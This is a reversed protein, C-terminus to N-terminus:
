GQPTTGGMLFDPVVVGPAPPPPAEPTKGKGKSVPAAAAAEAAAARANAEALAAKLSAVEESEVPSTKAESAAKDFEVKFAKPDWDLWGHERDHKAEEVTTAVKIGHDPHQLYIVGM